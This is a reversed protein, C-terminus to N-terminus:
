AMARAQPGSQRHGIEPLEAQAPPIDKPAPPASPVAPAGPSAAMSSTAILGANLSLVGSSAGTQTRATVVITDAASTETSMAQDTRAAQTAATFSASDRYNTATTTTGGGGNPGSALIAGGGNVSIAYGAGAVYPTGSSSRTFPVGAATLRAATASNAFQRAAEQGMVAMNISFAMDFDIGGGRGNGSNQNTGVGVEEADAGPYTVDDLMALFQESSTSPPAAAVSAVPTDAQRSVSGGWQDIGSDAPAAELLAQREAAGSLNWLATSVIEPAPRAMLAAAGSESDDRLALGHARVDGDDITSFQRMTVDRM